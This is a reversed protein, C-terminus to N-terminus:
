IKPLGTIDVIKESSFGKKLMSSVVAEVGEDYGKGYGQGYGQGYGKDYYSNPLELVRNAEEPLNSIKENMEKEERENLKLYTEFFGYILTAKAPDLEMRSLMRLFELKVEM